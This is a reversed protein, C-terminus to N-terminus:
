KHVTAFVFGALILLAIAIHVWFLVVNGRKKGKDIQDQM